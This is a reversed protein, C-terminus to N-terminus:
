LCTYHADRGVRYGGSSISHTCPLRPHDKQENHKGQKTFFTSIQAFVVAYMLCSLWIPVLCLVLKAEEVQTTSCLRWNNKTESSLDIENAIAAKNLCKFQKTQPLIPYMPDEGEECSNSNGANVKVLHQKRSAAIFVQVIRTLSSGRPVEQRYLKRGLLFLILAIGMAIASIGFGALIYILSAFLITKFRGVYADVIFAGLLPLIATVDLWVNVNKAAKAISEHLVKTLYTILNGAIGCFAFREAVEVGVGAM